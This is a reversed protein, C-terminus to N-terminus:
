RSLALSVFYFATRPSLAPFLFSFSLVTADHFKTRLAAQILQDTHSDVNATAEDLVLIKTSRGTVM